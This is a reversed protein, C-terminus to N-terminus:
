LVRYAVGLRGAVAALRADFSWLSHGSLKAAVLLQVDNWGIGRGFLANSELFSMCEDATGPIARPLRRLDALTQQRRTLNGVALEGLVVPHISIMSKGLLLGLDPSGRRFHEVWVSTDALVMM